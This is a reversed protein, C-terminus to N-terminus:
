QRGAEITEIRRMLDGYEIDGVDCWFRVWSSEFFIRAKPSGQRLLEINTKILALALCRQGEEPTKIDLNYSGTPRSM